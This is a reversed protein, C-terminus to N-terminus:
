QGYWTADQDIWGNPWLMCLGFTPPQAVKKKKPPPAPEEDLVIHCPGLGIETGCQMKIWGAMKAVLFM